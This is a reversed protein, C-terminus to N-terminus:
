GANLPGLALKAARVGARTAGELTAPYPGVVYDGAALLGPAVVVTPRQLGPTCAFTARREVASHVVPTAAFSGPIERAAQAQIATILTPVGRELWQSAGSVVFAVLNPEQALLALDFAFQAPAQDSSRLAVMPRPLPTDGRRLYVTAIPEYRFTAAVASWQPNIPATLRAAETASCALVVADFDVDDILWRADAHARMTMVRHGWHLRAGHDILWHVAPEPFLRSLGATPLMLDSSGRGGFLADALVRLFVTADAQHAPTNLAAICLPDILDNRVRAPLAACLQEVTDFGPNRMRRALWVLAQRLLALREPWSWGRARLVARAFALHAPGPPMEIGTGDAYLLELPRRQMVREPEVGVARMLRLTESYAGILIHQGNDVRAHGLEVSRARGGPHAAMEFVTVAAGDLVAQVAAALGAWGAGVIAVRRPAPSV